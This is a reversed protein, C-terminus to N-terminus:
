VQPQLRHGQGAHLRVGRLVGLLKSELGRRLHSREQSSGSCCVPSGTHVPQLSHHDVSLRYERLQVVATEGNTSLYHLTQEGYYSAGSKDVEVSATVLLASAALALLRTLFGPQRPPRGLPPPAAEGKSNWQMNARDAKFFSKNALAATPGGLVPYQYLRM